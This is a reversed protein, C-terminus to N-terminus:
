ELGEFWNITDTSWGKPLGHGGDWIELTLSGAECSEWVKTWRNGDASSNDASGFCGNAARWIDLGKLIGGQHFNRGRWIGKRGELPVMRDGFGHSHRLHVSGECSPKMPEWFGGAAAAYAKATDPAACAVDWVMSGGRSFGTMLVTDRDLDFRQTADNIVDRLFAVDDRTDPLGDFVSWDRKLGSPTLLAYGRATVREVFGKNKVGAAGTGGSGHLFVFIGPKKNTSTEPVAIHYEGNQLKCPAEPGGCGQGFATAMTFTQIMAIVALVRFM